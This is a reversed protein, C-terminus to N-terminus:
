QELKAPTEASLDTTADPDPEAADTGEQQGDQVDDPAKTDPTEGEIIADSSPDPIAPTSGEGGGISEEIPTVDAPAAVEPAPAPDAVPAPAPRFALVGILVALACVGAILLGVKRVNSSTSTQGRANWGWKSDPSWASRNADTHRYVVVTTNDQKSRGLDEVSKLLLNAIAAPEARAAEALLASLRENSLSDLGDTALVILDGHQLAAANVDILTLETGIVASRLANRRPHADAESQTIKGAKVLDMLEGYVSHDANLHSLKGARYLYIHSDGISVWILKDNHKLGAVLTCGMGKLSADETIRAALATNAAHASDLLRERPTHANSGSVFHTQFSNIVLNSAVEGGIHGGMGDSVIMLLDGTVDEESQALIAFADEQNERQGLSRKGSVDAM